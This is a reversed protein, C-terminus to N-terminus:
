KDFNIKNISNINNNNIQEFLYNAALEENKDCCYYAQIAEEESFNGLEFMDGLVAIKRNSNTGALYNIAAKMSDYSANYSDNIITMGNNVKLIEMRKKTLEFTAIGKRIEENTLNLM